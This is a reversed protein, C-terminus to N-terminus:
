NAYYEGLDGHMGIRMGTSCNKEGIGWVSWVLIESALQHACILICISKNHMTAHTPHLHFKGFTEGPSTRRYPPGRSSEPNTAMKNNERQAQNTHNTHNADTAPQFKVIKMIGAHQSGGASLLRFFTDACSPRHPSNDGYRVNIDIFQRAARRSRSKGTSATWSGNILYGIFGLLNSKM